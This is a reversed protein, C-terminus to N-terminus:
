RKWTKISSNNWHEDFYSLGLLYYSLNDDIQLNVTTGVIYRKRNGEPKIEVTLDEYATDRRLIDSITRNLSDPTFKQSDYLKQFVQGHQTNHSVLHDDIITDFCRNVSVVIARKGNYGKEVIDPSYMDGYKVYVSNKTSSEGLCPLKNWLAKVNDKLGNGDVISTNYNYDPYVVIVPLGLVNIGYDIEERLARSNRTNESLFLIINKSNRLRQHLRPKLTLEWDSNDRVNYTTDHADLFPFSCDKGKWARLMNYYVFDKASYAGLNTESFPESVYFASYNNIRHAM